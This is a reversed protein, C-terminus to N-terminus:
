VTRYSYIPDCWSDAVYVSCVSLWSCPHDTPVYCATSTPFSKLVISATFCALSQPSAQWRGATHVQCTVYGRHAETAWPYCLGEEHTLLQHEALLSTTRSSHSLPWRSDLPEEVEKYVQRLSGDKMYKETFIDYPVLERITKKDDESTALWRDCPFTLTETGQPSSSPPLHAQLRYPPFWWSWPNALMSLSILVLSLSSTAERYLFM